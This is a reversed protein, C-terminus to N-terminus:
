WVYQQVITLSQQVPPLKWLLENTDGVKRLVPEGTADLKTQWLDDVRYWGDALPEVKAGAAVRLYYGSEPREASLKWERRLGPLEKNTSPAPHDEIRLGGVDYLFIPQRQENLRYGRFRQEGDRSGKSPWATPEGVFKAFTPGAALKLVNDGLPPQFGAGRDIWHKSADIFAGQWLLALRLDNADFALNVHEPYGVGIARPGGGEIFNRYMVPETDAVLEIPDRGLGQPMTAKDGDTLYTWVAHIQQPTEGGLVNALLSQGMPWASPMRTGPRYKPPDLVYEHFWAPRLRRAMTTMSISQIGTAPVNGWTHCKICSYGQSGVLRRGASKLQGPTVNPEVRAVQPEPDAQEFAAVLAGTNAAGFKPMRTFMYLRDKTGNELVQRLWDRTLKGGIGNLHPPVRGEDGMEPQNSQFFANRADTVGGVKGREHCAYCNLSLLTRSIVATPQSAEPRDRGADRIAAQLARRQPASVGYHPVSASPSPALCGRDAQLSAFPPITAKPATATPSGSPAHCVGCELKEFWQKGAAVQQPDTTWPTPAAGRRQTEIAVLGAELPRLKLGNGEYEVRLEEGGGQEFYEVVVAHNGASLFARGLENRVPHIGDNNVVLQGDIFLRSGDDSALHFRYQGEKEIRLTGEFRLAFQDPRGLNVDFGATLGTSVPKLQSFDPLKDWGGEYYSYRLNNILELDKLLYSAIDRAEDPNLNLHPMRGSPRVALPDALFQTLGPLSYKRSVHELPVSGPIKAADPRQPDHCAVCGVRHFAQEGRTVQSRVAPSELLSGGAQSLYHALAEAVQPRQVAPVTDLVHPMTTGPRHVAPALLYDRVYAPRLRLGARDLLPAQKRIVREARNKELTHCATCNLEGALLWGADPGEAAAETLREFGPVLPPDAALSERSAVFLVCIALSWARWPRERRAVCRPGRSSRFEQNPIPQPSRQCPSYNKLLANIM